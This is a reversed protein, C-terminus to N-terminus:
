RRKMTEVEAALDKQQEQLRSILKQQEKVAELLVVTLQSYDIGKYGYMDSKVQEPFEKELDQAILGIQKDESFAPLAQDVSVVAAETKTPAAASSTLVESKSNAAIGPDNAMAAKRM